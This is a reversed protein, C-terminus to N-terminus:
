TVYRGIFGAAISLFTIIFYPLAGDVILCTLKNGDSISGVNSCNLEGRTITINDKMPEIILAGAVFVMFAILIGLMIGGRRNMNGGEGSTIFRSLRISGRHFLSGNFGNFPM